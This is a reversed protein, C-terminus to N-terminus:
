RTPYPPWSSKWPTPGDRDETYDTDDMFFVSLFNKFYYFVNSNKFMGNDCTM